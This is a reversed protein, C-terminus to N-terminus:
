KNVLGGGDQQSRTQFCFVNVVFYSQLKDSAATISSQNSWDVFFCPCMLAGDHKHQLQNVMFLQWQIKGVCVCVLLLLGVGHCIVFGCM